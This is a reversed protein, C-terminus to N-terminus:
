ILTLDEENGFTQHGIRLFIAVNRGKGWVTKSCTRDDVLSIYVDITSMSGVVCIFLYM